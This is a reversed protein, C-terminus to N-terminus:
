VPTPSEKRRQAGEMFGRLDAPATFPLYIQTTSISVHGLAVQVDRLSAGANIL